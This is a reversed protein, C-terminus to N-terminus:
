FQSDLSSVQFDKLAAKTELFLFQTLLLKLQFHFLQELNAKQFFFMVRTVIAAEVIVVNSCYISFWWGCFLDEIQVRHNSKHNVIRCFHRRASKFTLLIVQLNCQMKNKLFQILICVRVFDLSDTWFLLRFLSHHFNGLTTMLTSIVFLKERHKPEQLDWVTRFGSHANISHLWWRIIM